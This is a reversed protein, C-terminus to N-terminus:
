TRGEALSIGEALAADGNRIQFHLWCIPVNVVALGVGDQYANLHSVHARSRRGCIDKYPPITM